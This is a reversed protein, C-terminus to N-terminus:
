TRGANVDTFDWLIPVQQLVCLLNQRCDHAPGCPQSDFRAQDKRLGAVRGVGVDDGHSTTVLLLLPMGFGASGAVRGLVRIPNDGLSIALRQGHGFAKMLQAHTERHQEPILVELGVGALEGGSYGLLTEAPRNVQVIRGDQGVILAATPLVEIWDFM